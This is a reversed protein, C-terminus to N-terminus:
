KWLVRVSFWCKLYRTWEQTQMKCRRIYLIDSICPTGKQACCSYCCKGATAPKWRSLASTSVFVVSPSGTVPFKYQGKHPEPFKEEVNLLRVYTWTCNVSRSVVLGGTRSVHFGNQGSFWQRLTIMAIPSLLVSDVSFSWAAIALTCLQVLFHRIFSFSVFATCM